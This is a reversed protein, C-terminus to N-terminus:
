GTQCMPKKCHLCRQAEAIAEKMTYPDDEYKKHEDM